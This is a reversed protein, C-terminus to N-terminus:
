CPDLFSLKVHSIHVILAIITIMYVQAGGRGGMYQLGEHDICDDLRSSM